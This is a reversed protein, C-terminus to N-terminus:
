GAGLAESWHEADSALPHVGRAVAGSITVRTGGADGPEFSVNMKEGNVTHWLM